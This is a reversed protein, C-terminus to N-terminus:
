PPRDGRDFGGGGRGRGRGAGNGASGPHGGNPGGTNGSCTGGVYIKLTDGSSIGLEEYPADTVSVAGGSSGVSPNGWGKTEWGGGSAAWMKITLTGPLAGGSFATGTGGGGFGLMSLIPSQKVNFLDRFISM